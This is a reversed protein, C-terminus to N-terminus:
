RVTVASVAWLPNALRLPNAEDPLVWELASGDASFSPRAQDSATALAEPCPLDVSHGRERDDLHVRCALTGAPGTEGVLYAVFRGDASISPHHRDLAVGEGHLSLGLPAATDGGWLTDALVQRRGDSAQRDYLLDQGLADLAPHASAQDAAATIRRTTGFPVEHLFIDSVGNDDDTVLDDAESQFVVWDGSADAAAWGSPGNGAAGRLTRSLLALTGRTLDLRYVDSTENGDAPDLGQPTELLLWQGQPDLLAQALAASDIRRAALAEQVWVPLAEATAHRLPATAPIAEATVAPVSAARTTAPAAPASASASCTVAEARAQFRAGAVVRFGNGFRLRPARLTLDAGSLLQVAGQTVIGQGAALTLTGPGYDIPGITLPGARCGGYESDCADGIGDGDRDAQDPNAVLPCNDAADPVTDGDDDTDANNGIGDGDTDVSESPNLPFADQADPVGDNDDDPDEADPIGDGDTDLAATVLLRTRNGAADYTYALIAGDPYTVQTLRHLADYQYAVTGALLGGSMLLGVTLSALTLAIRQYTM